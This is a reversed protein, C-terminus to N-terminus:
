QREGQGEERAMEQLRLAEKLKDDLWNRLAQAAALSMIIEVEIERLLMGRSAETNPTRSTEELRKAGVSYTVSNPLVQAETYFGVRINGTPTIGGWAGDSHITRHLASKTFQIEISTPQQREQAM